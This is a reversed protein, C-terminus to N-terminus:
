PETEKFDIFASEPLLDPADRSLCAAIHQAAHTLV